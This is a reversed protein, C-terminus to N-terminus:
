LKFCKQIDKIDGIAFVIDGDVMYTDPMPVNVQDNIKVAIININYRRRIDLQALTKNEWEKPIKMEYISYNSDLQIFDLVSDLAYKTAVRIASQKEPYVVEDAGNRLLFKMQVDNTARSIVKEAGMEKLLATTELSTQFNDGISVICVDYNRVGLSKMFDENTSDGIQASTVFPLIDNIREENTDVAMVECKLETMRKAIHTGYQGVGIILVSKM